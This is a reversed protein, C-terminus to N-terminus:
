VKKRGLVIFAILAIIFSYLFLNEGYTYGAILAGIFGGLGYAIGLM